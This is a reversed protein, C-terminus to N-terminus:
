TFLLGKYLPMKFGVVFGGWIVALVALTIVISLLWSQRHLKLYLFTFLPLGALLGISCMILALGAIWAAAALYDRSFGKRAVKEEQPVTQPERRGMTERFIQVVALVATPIAIFLPFLKADYPYALSTIIVIGLIALVIVVFISSTKM